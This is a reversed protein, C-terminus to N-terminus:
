FDVQLRVTAVLADEYRGGPHQIYQLDPKVSAWPTMQVKYFTEVELEHDYRLGAHQSIHAYTAGIGIVDASRHPIVGMWQLGGGLQNDFFAIHPQAHGFQLFGGLGSTDDANEPHQRYLTQDLTAYVGATGHTVHTSSPAIDQFPGTAYWGGLALRGPLQEDRLSWKPGAEAIWFWDSPLGFFTAPGRSGVLIGSQQAGDYVGLKAYFHKPEFFINVATSPDPYTPMFQITPTYGFTANIFENANTLVEFESNADVKGIKFRLLDHLLRQEYWLQAIQTRGDADIDDFNQVDGTLTLSAHPGNQQQFDIFVDSGPIHLLKATDLLVTAELLHRFADGATDIGGQFNKSYDATLLVDFTFGADELKSRAGFLDGSAHRWAVFPQAPADNSPAVTAPSQAGARTACLLAVVVLAFRPHSM